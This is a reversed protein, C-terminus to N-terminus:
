RLNTGKLYFGKSSDDTWKTQTGPKAIRKLYGNTNFGVCGEAEDCEKSLEKFNNENNSKRIDNGGYDIGQFFTYKQDALYKPYCNTGVQIHTTPCNINEYVKPAIPSAAPGTITILQKAESTLNASTFVVEEKENLLFIKYGSGMRGQCCDARNYVTVSVVQTPKDLTVQFVANGGNSHYENPHGRSAEAGDVANSERGDWGVGTSRTQRGRAVNVGLSDTVVLQSLNIYDSGGALRVYKVIGSNTKQWLKTNAEEPSKNPVGAENIMRYVVGNLFVIDGLKYTVSNSYVNVGSPPKSNDPKSCDINVVGNYGAEPPVVLTQINNDGCHFKVELTKACGGAPDGGTKTYDFKYDMSKKGNMLGKFLETRNGRLGGNCNIGYSAEIINISSSGACQPSIEFHKYTGGYPDGLGYGNDVTFQCSNQGICKNPLQGTAVRAPTNPNVTGHACVNNNWRGYKITGGAITQGSPCKVTTGEGECGFSLLSNSSYDLSVQKLGGPVQVWKANKYDSAYFINNASNVGYLKGNSISVWILKGPIQFWNPKSTINQDACWIDQNRNVGCVVNNYGDFSVQNLSGPVHVWEANRYNPAYFINNDRNCGYLQGNSVSVNILAGPAQRWNPNNQINQDAFYIGDGSNVGAVVNAKGDLSVQKLGGPIQAWQANKYNDAYYINNGSNTGYLRGNSISVNQLGGPVQFWNPNTEINEDACYIADSSNVGCVVNKNNNEFNEIQKKKFNKKKDPLCVYSPINSKSNNSFGEILAPKCSFIENDKKIKFM